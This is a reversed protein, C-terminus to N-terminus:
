KGLIVCCYKDLMSVGIYKYDGLLEKNHTPSNVFASLDNEFGYNALEVIASFMGSDLYPKKDGYFLNHLNDKETYDFEKWYITREKALTQLHGNFALADLKEFWFRYDNIATM